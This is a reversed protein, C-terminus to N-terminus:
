MEKFTEVFESYYEGLKMKYQNDLSIKKSISNLRKLSTKIAKWHRDLYIKYDQETAIWYGKNGSCVIANLDDLSNTNNIENVIRRIERKKTFFETALKENSIANDIGINNNKLYNYVQYVITTHKAKNM